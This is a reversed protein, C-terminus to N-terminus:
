STKTFTLRETHDPLVKVYKEWDGGALRKLATVNLDAVRAIEEPAFAKQVEVMKVENKAVSVLEFVGLGVATATKNPCARLMDKLERECKKLKEEAAAFEEKLVVWRAMVGQETLLQQDTIEM